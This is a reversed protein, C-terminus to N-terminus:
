FVCVGLLAVTLLNLVGHLQRCVCISYGIHKIRTFRLSCILKLRLFYSSLYHRVVALAVFRWSVLLSKIGASMQWLWLALSSLLRLVHRIRDGGAGWGSHTGIYHVYVVLLVGCHTRWMLLMPAAITVWRLFWMHLSPLTSALTALTSWHSKKGSSKSANTSAVLVAVGSRLTLYTASSSFM